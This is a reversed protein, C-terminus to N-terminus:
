GNRIVEESINSYDKYILRSSAFGNESRCDTILMNAKNEKMLQYLDECSIMKPPLLPEEKEQKIRWIMDMDINQPPLSLPPLSLPSMLLPPMSLDDKERKIERLLGMDGIQPELLQEQYERKIEERMIEM